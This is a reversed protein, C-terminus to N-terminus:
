VAVGKLRQLQALTAHCDARIHIFAEIGAARYSAVQETPYGALMLTTEPQEAKFLNTLAPVLDPYREDAACIVVIGAGSDRAARLADQPGVLSPSAIVEFGGAECFSTVFDTRTKLQALPGITALFIAPRTGTRLAYQEAAARLSEFQEAGRHAPIPEVLPGAGSGAYLVASLEGLTAGAQAARIAAAMTQEPTTAVCTSLNELAAQLIQADAQASWERVTACREAHLAVSDITRAILPQEKLNVYMNAGIIVERRLAIQNLREARTAAVQTQPFSMVLAVAMGGRREIEQFLNWANHAIEDTLREIAWAGGVPDVLRFFNCEQQLVIQVNRAIRRSFSDPLGIAEDFSSVHLSDCGGMVGAFAESTARLMNNYADSRTKTWASTRGHIVLKQAQIDGGFAEVVRAWLLRAARLRAIEIFFPAGISFSFQIRPAVVNVDLGRMEMARLYAAGTALGFALDQVANAGGNHYPHLEISITRLRPAHAQAWATLWALTDYSRELNTPLCGHTALLGLPDMGICGRLQAPDVGQRAAAAIILALLPLGSAGVAVHLPTQALPVGNFLTTLDTLNALSVGGQGVMEPPVQDPDLGLLTARDLPVNLMTLGRPLDERAAQNVAAATPYPLEQAVQWPQIVYGLAQTNRLYPPLGPLSQIQPLAATDAQTYIPQLKIGEYTRTVLKQEFPVGKLAQETARRWAEPSAPPFDDFLSHEVTHEPTPKEMEHMM